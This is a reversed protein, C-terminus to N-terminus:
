RSIGLNDILRVSGLQVAVLARAASGPTLKQLPLLTSEDVIEAYDVVTRPIVALDSTLRRRLSAVSTEGAEAAMLATLLAQYIRPAVLRSEPSLLRNRSSLALGDEERVTAHSLIKVPMKLDRVMRRIVAVQQWDKEGFIAIDPRIIQFLMAVVTCVGNFHGPRSAGCLGTSLSSECVKVSSDGEYMEEPTPHFLLDVGERKCLALDQAFPRPYKALDEKPGFQTPNVFISVVVSGKRGALRRARRILSAHGEHLAGMTPVFVVPGSTGEAKKRWLTVPGIRAATKV